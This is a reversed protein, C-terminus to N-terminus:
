IPEPGQLDGECRFASLDKGTGSVEVDKTLLFNIRRSHYFMECGYSDPELNQSAADGNNILGKFALNFGM